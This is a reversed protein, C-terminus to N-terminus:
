SYINDFSIYNESYEVKKETKTGCYICTFVVIEENNNITIRGEDFTHGKACPDIAEEKIVENCVKCRYVMIEKGDNDVEVNGQDSVHGDLCTNPKCGILLFVCILLILVKKM